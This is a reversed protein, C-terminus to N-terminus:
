LCSEINDNLADASNDYFLQTCNDVPVYFKIMSDNIKTVEFKEVGEDLDILVKDKELGWPYTRSAVNIGNSNTTEYLAEETFDWETYTEGEHYTMKKYYPKSTLLDFNKKEEELVCKNGIKFDCSGTSTSSSGCGSFSSSLILLGLLVHRRM